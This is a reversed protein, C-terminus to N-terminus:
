LKSVGGLPVSASSAANREAWEAGDKKMDSRRRWCSSEERALGSEGEERGRRGWEQLVPLRPAADSRDDM